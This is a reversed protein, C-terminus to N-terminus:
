DRGNYNVEIDLNVDSVVEDQVKLSITFYYSGSAVGNFSSPSVELSINEKLWQIQQETM